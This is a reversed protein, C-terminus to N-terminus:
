ATEAFRIVADRDTFPVRYDEAHRKTKEGIYIDDMDNEFQALSPDIILAEDDVRCEVWAHPRARGGKELYSGVIIHYPEADKESLAYDRLRLVCWICANNCMSYVQSSFHSDDDEDILGHRKMSGVFEEKTFIWELEEKMDMAREKKKRKRTKGDAKPVFYLRVKLNGDGCSPL